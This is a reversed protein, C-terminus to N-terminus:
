NKALLSNKYETPTKGEVKEFQTAFYDANSFGVYSAIEYVRLDTKRLLKKAEQVRINLLFDNFYVGYTKKFLQGLYVPNMYFKKAISKLSLNERYNAEIYSKIKCIDGKAKEKRLEAIYALSETLFTHFLRKLGDPTHPEEHWDLVPKLSSLEQEAGEMERVISIVGLVCRAIASRVSEPAFRERCFTEFMRDVLHACSGADSEEVSEVLRAHLKADLEVYNLEAELTQEYGIFRSDAFAFKYRVAKKATRYSEAVAHLGKAPKGAYIRVEAREEEPIARVLAEGLAQWSKGLGTLSDSPVILGFTSVGQECVTVKLSQGFTEAAARKWGSLRQQAEAESASGFPTNNREVLFYCFDQDARFGLLNATERAYGPDSEGALLRELRLNLSQRSDHRSVERDLVGKIRILTQALEEEDIPKLLFDQVGFRVAQQAYKFDGYGSIIVFKPSAIGRDRIEGILSLGDMVPMRIDSIVLDPQLEEILQIAEEGDNAEGAIEFGYDNWSILGLLGKRAFIEDDVLIIKKM